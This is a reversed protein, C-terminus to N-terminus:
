LITLCIILRVSQMFAYVKDIFFLLQSNVNQSVSIPGNEGCEVLIYLADIVYNQVSYKSM